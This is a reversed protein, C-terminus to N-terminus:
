NGIGSQASGAITGTAMVNDSGSVGQFGFNGIVGGAKIPGNNVFAGNVAGNMGSGSLYGSFLAQNSTSADSVGASLNLGDFSNLNVTGTRDNFDFTMNMTGSAIYTSTGEQNQRTVNGLATGSYTAVINTPLDDPHTIDGAVWSGMHAYDTRTETGEGTDVETRVRTGWWGWDLFSCDSCHAYGDIPNARGSVIYSGPNDGAKNPLDQEDETVLRTNENSGDHVAGFRDDDVFASGVGGFSLAYYDVVGNTSPWYEGPVQLTDYLVASASVTNNVADTSLTLTPNIGSMGIYPNEAGGDSSEFLGAMFGQHTRTTRSLEGQPTTDTLSAVHHTAFPFGDALYGDQQNGTYGANNLTTDAFGDAPTISAGLVFHEANAGFFANGSPGATAVVSGRMNAPGEGADFRFSGRRIGALTADGEDDIGVPSAIVFAASKQNSGEGEIYIWSQFLKADLNTEGTGYNAATDSEVIFLNSSSLFQNDVAGFLDDVFFPADIGEIPDQTLTYERVNTGTNLSSIVESSTPTGVIVQYPDRPDGDFGLFYAAFDGAGAYAVGSVAQGDAITGGIITTALGEDGVTGTLDPLSTLTDENMLLGGVKDFVINRDSAETTGVLGRQGANEFSDESGLPVFIDPATLVRATVIEVRETQKGVITGVAYFDENNITFDGIVGAAITEGDNVFAGSVYFYTQSEGNTAYFEAQQSEGIGYAVGDLSVGAFNDIWFEGARDNFNYSMGFTGSAIYQAAGAEGQYSAVTGLMTGEYTARVNIPMDVAATIDGAVWTGMHVYDRRGYPLAESEEPEVVVRTGWWGWDIFDCDACHSYGEIPVARGSVLYSGANTTDTHAVEEGEIENYYDADTLIRTNLPSNNQVAGYVDDNVFTNGGTAGEGTTVLPSFGGIPVGDVGEPAAGFTLLYKDVELDNGRVDTVVGVAAVSNNEANLQMFFNPGAEGALAVPYNPDFNTEMAGAMFGSVTRTTRAVNEQPTEEVLAAVHQTVFTGDEDYPDVSSDVFSDNPDLTSGIVFHDANDGFFHSGDPGALTTMYGRMNVAGDYSSSRYSGRRSGELTDTGAEDESAASATVFAASKQNLGDGEISIWSMFTEFEGTTSGGPEVIYFDTSSANTVPGYSTPAFFPVGGTSPDSTLTYRRIDNLSVNEPAETLETGTGHIMYFPYATETGYELLYAAFDGRGAYAYGTLSDAGFLGDDVTFTELGADGQTGTYDPLDIAAEDSVLRGGTKTFTVEEQTFIQPVSLSRFSFGSVAGPGGYYVTGSSTAPTTVEGRTDVDGVNTEIDDVDTAKVAVSRPTPLPANNPLNSNSQPLPSNQVTGDNPQEDSGGTQGDGGSLDSQFTSADSETRRRVNTDLGGGRGGQVVLTYGPEYIRSRRGDRGRFQVEDGFIMSFLAKDSSEVRGEVMAGRIGITGVPTNITAGDPRRSTQGGIFRFAGKAVSAVVKADGTAPNYVFEDITLQSNPGVTFTTGDLLLIQVLGRGDTTIEENFIVNQGLSIIRPAAGPPRGKADTNVAAAVGVKAFAPAQASVLAVAAVGAALSRMPVSRAFPAAM